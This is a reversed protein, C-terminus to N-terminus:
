ECEPRLLTGDPLRVNFAMTWMGYEGANSLRVIVENKGKRLKVDISESRWHSHETTTLDEGNLWIKGDNLYGFTITAETDRPSHIVSRGFAYGKHTRVLPCSDSYHPLPENFNVFGDIEHWKKWQKSDISQKADFPLESLDKREHDFPGITWWEGSTEKPIDYSGRPLPAPSNESRVANGPLKFFSRVPVESYWYVTSTIDHDFCGFKLRISKDFYVGDPVFFRYGILRQNRVVTLDKESGNFPKGERQNPWETVETVYYPMDAYLNSNAQYDAGGWGAGFTCEGGSGRLYQPYATQGDIYINEAGGHSWRAVFRSRLLNVYYFFGILQGPGDADLMLYGQDYRKTPNERRWRACFRRKEQMQQGPYESWDVQYYGSAPEEGELEIKMHKAFPMPMFMTPSNHQQISVFPTNVTMWQEDAPAKPGEKAGVKRARMLGFFNHLPCEVYPVPEHDFYIRIITNRSKEPEGMSERSHIMIRQICGAGETESTVLPKGATLRYITCNRRSITKGKPLNLNFLNSLTKTSGDAYLSIPLVGWLIVGILIEQYKKMTNYEGGNGM